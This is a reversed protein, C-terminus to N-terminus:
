SLAAAEAPIQTENEISHSPTGPTKEQAHVLYQYIASVDQDGHGASIALRYIEKAINTVPMAVAAEYASTSALHLDKQMWRLPFDAEYNAQEIKGRKAVLFPAAAPTGVLSNLLL